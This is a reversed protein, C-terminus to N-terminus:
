DKILPLFGQLALFVAKLELCNIHWKTQASTWTGYAPRGDCLAGWGTLSADTTVIKRSIVRGMSVGQEFMRTSCGVLCAVSREEVHQKASQIEAMASATEYASARTSVGCSSSGYARVTESLMESDDSEGTQVLHSRQDFVTNARSLSASEDIALEFGNRLIHYDAHPLAPEEACQDDTRSAESTRSASM